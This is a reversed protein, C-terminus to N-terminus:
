YNFQNRQDIVKLLDIVWPQTMYDMAFPLMDIRPPRLSAARQDAKLEKAQKRYAGNRKQISHRASSSTWHPRPGIM